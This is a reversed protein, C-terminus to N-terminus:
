LHKNVFKIVFLDRDKINALLKNIKKMTYGISCLYIFFVVYVGCVNSTLSQIVFTQRTVHKFHKLYKSINANQPILGFSDFYYVHEKNPLFMAVWHSGPENSNDMNVVFSSPYNKISPIKDAPYCGVYYKKTSDNKRLIANIQHGFM